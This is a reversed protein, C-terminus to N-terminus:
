SSPAPSTCPARADLLARFVPEWGVWTDFGGRTVKVKSTMALGMTTQKDQVLNSLGEETLEALTSDSAAADECVLEGGRVALTLLRGDVALTLPPLNKYGLGRAALAGSRACAEPLMGDFVEDRSLELLDKHLRSRCDISM